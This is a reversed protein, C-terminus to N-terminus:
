SPSTNTISGPQDRRRRELNLGVAAFGENGVLRGAKREILEFGESLYLTTAPVNGELVETAFVPGAKTIAHRLLARGYGKGYADPTVYLWTLEHDSYAVFGLVQGDVELVDLQADFLGEADATQELTLFADLGVSLRLEDLRAADHIRCLDPWDLDTYPRILMAKTELPVARQALRGSGAKPQVSAAQM